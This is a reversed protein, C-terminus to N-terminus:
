CVLGQESLWNAAKLIGGGNDIVEIILRPQAETKGLAEFIAKFNIDGDGPLWHRDAFGDSDQLHVHGLHNGAARIWYDPPPAGLKHNIFVHGVDVSPRVCDSNFSKVLEMWLAPDRDYITEIVLACGIREAQAVADGLTDHIVQLLSFAENPIFPAFPTGLFDLPSHIVMHTAGIEACFDLSQKLRDQTAARVKHDIAALPIGWFPGHVGMRGTYGDLQTKITAVVARWDGDFFNPWAPDQIELDRQHTLLWDRYEPLKLSPMAAGVLPLSPTM